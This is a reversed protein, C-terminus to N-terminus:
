FSKFLVIFGWILVVLFLLFSFVVSFYLVLIYDIIFNFLFALSFFMERDRCRGVNGSKFLATNDAIFLKVELNPITLQT